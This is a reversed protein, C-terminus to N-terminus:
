VNNCFNLCTLLTLNEQRFERVKEFSNMWTDKLQLDKVFNLTTAGSDLKGRVQYLVCFM